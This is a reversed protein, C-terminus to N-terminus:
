ADLLEIVDDLEQPAYWALDGTGDIDVHLAQLGDLRVPAGDTEVLACVVVAGDEAATMLADYEDEEEASAAIVYDLTVPQDDALARLAQVDAAAYVRVDSM